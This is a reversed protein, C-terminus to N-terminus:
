GSRSHSFLSRGPGRRGAARPAQRPAASQTREGHEGARIVRIVAGVVAFPFFVFAGLILTRALGGEAKNACQPCASAIAPVLLAFLMSLAM